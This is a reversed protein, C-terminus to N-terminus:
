RLLQACMADCLLTLCAFGMEQQWVPNCLINCSPYAGQM